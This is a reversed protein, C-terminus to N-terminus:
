LDVDVPDVGIARALQSAMEYSCREQYRAKGRTWQRTIGLRRRVRSGDGLHGCGKSHRFWGLDLAVDAASKGSALFAERLPAVDVEMNPHEPSSVQTM